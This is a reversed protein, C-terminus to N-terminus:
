RKDKENIEKSLPFLSFQMQYVATKDSCDELFETLERRFKTIMDKAQDIKEPNTTLMMSSHDRKEIPITELAEVSKLLLDKQAQRFAYNTYNKGQIHTTFGSSTDIWKEDEIKLLGLNLLSKLSKELQELSIGLSKAIWNKDPRFTKLTMLELIAYHQWRSIVEFQDVTIQQYERDVQSQKQKSGKITQFDEIEIASLGLKEGLKTIQKNTMKRKGNILKSLLSPDMDLARAFSRLSFNPNRENRARFERALFLKFDHNFKGTLKSM